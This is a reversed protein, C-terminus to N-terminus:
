QVLGPPKPIQLYPSLHNFAAIALPQNCNKFMMTDRPPPSHAPLPIGPLDMNGTFTDVPVILCHQKECKAGFIPLLYM